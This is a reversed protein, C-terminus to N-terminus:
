TEGSATLFGTKWLDPNNSRLWTKIKPVDKDQITAIVCKIEYVQRHLSPVGYSRPPGFNMFVIQFQYSDEWKRCAWCLPSFQRWNTFLTYSMSIFDDWSRYYVCHEIHELWCHTNQVLEM